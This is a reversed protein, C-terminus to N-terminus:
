LGEAISRSAGQVPKLLGKATCTRLRGAYTIGVLEGVHVGARLLLVVTTVQRATQLAMEIIYRQLAWRGVAGYSEIRWAIRAGTECL